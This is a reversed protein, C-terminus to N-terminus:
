GLAVEEVDLHSAITTDAQSSRKFFIMTCTCHGSRFFQFQHICYTEHQWTHNPIAPIAHRTVPVHIKKMKKTTGIGLHFHYCRLTQGHSIAPSSCIGTPICCSPNCISHNQALGTIASSNRMFPQSSTSLCARSGARKSEDVFVMVLASVDEEM